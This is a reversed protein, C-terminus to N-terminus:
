AAEKGQNYKAHELMVGYARNIEKLKETALRATEPDMEALRDPHFIKCLRRYATKIEKPSADTTVGLIMAAKELESDSGGQVRDVWAFFAEVAKIFEEVKKRGKEQVELPIYHSNCEECYMMWSGCITDELRGLLKLFWNDRAIIVTRKEPIGPNHCHPCLCKMCYKNKFLRGSEELPTACIPCNILM